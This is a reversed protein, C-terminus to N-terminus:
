VVIPLGSLRESPPYGSCLRRLWSGELSSVM